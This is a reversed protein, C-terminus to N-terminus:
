DSSVTADIVYYYYDASTSSSLSYTSLETEEDLGARSIVEQELSNDTIYTAPTAIAAVSRIYIRITTVAGSSIATAVALEVVGSSVPHYDIVAM